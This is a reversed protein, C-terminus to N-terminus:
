GQDWNVALGGFILQKNRGFQSFDIFIAIPYPQDLHPGPLGIRFSVNFRRQLFQSAPHFM